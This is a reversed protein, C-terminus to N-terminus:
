CPCTIESVRSGAQSKKKKKVGELHQKNAVEASKINMNKEENRIEFEKSVIHLEYKLSNIERECSQINTKLLEIDAEAQSKEESIKMLM